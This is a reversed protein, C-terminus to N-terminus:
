YDLNIQKRFQTELVEIKFGCIYGTEYLKPSSVFEDAFKKVFELQEEDGDCVTEIISTAVEELSSCIYGYRHGHHGYKIDVFYLIM